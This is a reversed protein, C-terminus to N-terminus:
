IMPSPIFLSSFSVSAAVPTGVGGDHFVTVRDGVAIPVIASVVGHTNTDSIMLSLGTTVGNVYITLTRNKGASPAATLWVEFRIFSGAVGFYLERNTISTGSTMGGMLWMYGDTGDTSMNTTGTSALFVQADGYLTGTGSDSITTTTSSFYNEKLWNDNSGSDILVGINAGRIKNNRVTSYSSDELYVANGASALVIDNDSVDAYDSDDVRIGNATSSAHIRNNKIILYNAQFDSSYVRIAYDSAGTQTAEIYNDEVTTNKRSIFISFSSAGVVTNGRIVMNGISNENVSQSQCIGRSVDRVFNEEVVINTGAEIGIGWNTALHGTGTMNDIINHHISIDSLSDATELTDFTGIGCDSGSYIINTFIQGHHSNSTVDVANWNCDHIRTNWIWFWNTGYNATGQIAIGHHEADYIELDSVRTFNSGEILIGHIAGTNGSGDKNADIAGLGHIYWNSTFSVHFVNSNATDSLQVLAGMLINVEVGEWSRDALESTITYTSPLFAYSSGDGGADLASNWVTVFTSSNFDNNGDSDMAFYSSESKYFRYTYVSSSSSGGSGNVSNILDLVTTNWSDNWTINYAGILANVTSDWLSKWTLSSNEMIQEVTANWANQWTLNGAAIQEVTTNWAERWALGSYGNIVALVTTNWDSEWDGAGVTVNIDTGPASGTPILGFQQAVLAGGVMLILLLAVGYWDLGM